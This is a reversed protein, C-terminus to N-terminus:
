NSPARGSNDLVHFKGFQLAQLSVAARSPNQPVRPHRPVDGVGTVTGDRSVSSSTAVSSMTDGGGDAVIPFSRVRLIWVKQWLLEWKDRNHCGYNLFSQNILLFESFLM